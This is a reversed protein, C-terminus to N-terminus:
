VPSDQQQPVDMHVGGRQRLCRLDPIVAGFVHVVVFIFGDALLLIAL